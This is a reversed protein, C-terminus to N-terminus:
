ETSLQMDGFSVAEAELEVGAVVSDVDDSGDDDAEEEGVGDGDEGEDEVEEGDVDGDDEEGGGSVEVGGPAMM